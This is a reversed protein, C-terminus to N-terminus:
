VWWLPKVLVSVSNPHPTFTPKHFYLLFSLYDHRRAEVYWIYTKYAPVYVVPFTCLHLQTPAELAPIIHRVSSHCTCCGGAVACTRFLARGLGVPTTLVETSATTDYRLSWKPSTPIRMGRTLFRPSFGWCDEASVRNHISLFVSLLYLNFAPNRRQTAKLRM